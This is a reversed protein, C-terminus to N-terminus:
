KLENIIDHVTQKSEEKWKSLVDNVIKKQLSIERKQEPQLPPLKRKEQEAKRLDAMKLTINRLDVYSPKEGKQLLGQLENIYSDMESQGEPSMEADGEQAVMQDQVAQDGGQGQMAPDQSPDGGQAQMQAQQAMMQEQAMQMQQAQAQMQADGFGQEYGMKFSAQVDTLYKAKLEQYKKKYDQM